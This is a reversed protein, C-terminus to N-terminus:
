LPYMVTPVIEGVAPICFPESWKYSFDNDALKEGTDLSWEKNCQNIIQISVHELIAIRCAKDDMKMIKIIQSNYADSQAKAVRKSCKEYFNTLDKRKAQKDLKFHLAQRKTLHDLNAKHPYLKNLNEKTQREVKNIKYGDSNFYFFAISGFFLIIFVMGIGFQHNKNM